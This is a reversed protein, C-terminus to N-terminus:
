PHRGARPSVSGPSINCSLQRNANKAIPRPLCAKEVIPRPGLGAALTPEGARSATMRAYEPDNQHPAPRRSDSGANPRELRLHEGFEGLAPCPQRSVAVEPSAIECFVRSAATGNQQQTGVGDTSMKPRAATAPQTRAASISIPGKRTKDM